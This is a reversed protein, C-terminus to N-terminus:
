QGELEMKGLVELLNDPAPETFHDWLKEQERIEEPNAHFTTVVTDELALGVRKTGPKTISMYGSEVRVPDTDTTILIVGSRVVFFCEDKHIAGTLLTGAPIHVTRAYIGHCFDNDVPMEVPELTERIAQELRYIPLHEPKIAVEGMHERM